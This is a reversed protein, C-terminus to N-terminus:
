GESLSRRMDFRKCKRGSDRSGVVATGRKHSNYLTGMLGKRIEYESLEHLVSVQYRKM